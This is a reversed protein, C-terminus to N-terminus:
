HLIWRGKFHQRKMSSGDMRLLSEGVFCAMVKETSKLISFIKLLVLGLLQAFAMGILTYTAVDQDGGPITTFLKTCICVLNMFFSNDFMSVITNSHVIPGFYMLVLALQSQFVFASLILM